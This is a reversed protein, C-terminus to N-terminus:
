AEPHRIIATGAWRHPQESMLSSSMVAARFWTAKRPFHLQGLVREVQGPVGMQQVATVLIAEVDFYDLMVGQLELGYFIGKIPDGAADAVMYTM